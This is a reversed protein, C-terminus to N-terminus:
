QLPTQQMAVAQWRGDRRVFVRMYRIRGSFPIGRFTGTNDAIGTLVAVEGYIRVALELYNVTLLRLDGSGIDRLNDAKTRLQGLRSIEVFEDAVLRSLAATDAHLLAQGRATEVARVSDEPTSGSATGQAAVHSGHAGLLLLM